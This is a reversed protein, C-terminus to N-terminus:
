AMKDLIKQVKRAYSPGFLRTHVLLPYLSYLDAREEFFGPKIPNIENYRGFFSANFTNLLRIFALEIEPDAYYIAPDLFAAIRDPGALINGGWVDGHILSPPNPSKIYSTLKGTLKEVQKMMKKDIKEEKLAEQAMYLLRHQAFFQVWDTTQPNPQHLSGVRTDRELGYKDARVKHLEALLEAAHRHGNDNLSHHSGVFEMIIVHDNSYFIQPVPLKSKERLYKLMYAEIDLHGESVKAVYPTKNEMLIRYIQANNAASLPSMTAIKQKLHQEIEAKLAPTIM